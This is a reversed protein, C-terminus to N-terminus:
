SRGRKWCYLLWELAVLALALGAFPPWIAQLTMREAADPADVQLEPHPQAALASEQGDAMNVAIQLEEGGQRSVRYLGPEDTAAFVGVPGVELRGGSPTQVTAGQGVRLTEGPRLAGTGAVPYLWDILNAMLLPFAALKTINSERPDFALVAVRQGEREGALLLPGQSSQVVPELWAPPDLKRGRQVVLARLDVGAALPHGPGAALPRAEQLEETSALFGGSPNVLLLSGAPLPDPLAGEIISFAADTAPANTDTIAGLGFIGEVVRLYLDPQAAAIKVKYQGESPLVLMARNDAALADRPTLNMSFQATGAPVQWVLDAQGGAPVDLRRVPLPVTDNYAAVEVRQEASGFNEVRAYVAYGPSGDPLTRASLVTIARNEVAGGVPTFSVAPPMTANEVSEFAGDSIVHALVSGERSRRALGAAIGLAAEFDARGAGPVLRGLAGEFDSRTCDSCATTVNAGVRLLTARDQAGMEAVLRRAEERAQDFRSRQGDVAQMSGSADLLVILHRGVPASLAPQMLAFGGALLLLAQLLLLLSLPPPRLRARPREIRPLKEWLRLSPVRTPRSRPRLMYLAVLAPVLLLWWAASPALIQPIM